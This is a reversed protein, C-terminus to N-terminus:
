DRAPVLVEEAQADEAFLLLRVHHRYRKGGQKFVRPVRAANVYLIGDRCVQKVRVGGGKVRHHMHGAAVALVRKNRKVAYEIAHRLDDDGFDGEEDRFDCGWIDSKSAGLGLPGNHALFLIRKDVTADILERLKQRSHEEDTIGFRHRLLPAFAMTPGGMSHPRAAIVTLGHTALRHISYGAIEVRGLAHAFEGQLSRGLFGLASQAVRSGVVEAVLQAALVADHNGPILVARKRLLAIREAVELTAKHRYSGIDGVFLILDYDSDDFYEVDEEDWAGHVDGVIAVRVTRDSDM